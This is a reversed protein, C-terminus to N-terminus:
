LYSHKTFLIISFSPLPFIALVLFPPPCTPSALVCAMNLNCPFLIIPLYFITCLVPSFSFRNKKKKGGGRCISSRPWPDSGLWLQSRLWLQLLASGKVFQAPSAVSGLVSSIGNLWPPLELVPNEYEPFM